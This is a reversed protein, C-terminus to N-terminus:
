ILLSLFFIGGAISIIFPGTERHIVGAACTGIITSVVAVAISM